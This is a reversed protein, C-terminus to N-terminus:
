RSCPWLEHNQKVITSWGSRGTERAVTTAHGADFEWLAVEHGNEALVIALTTGWSGAGLVAVRM